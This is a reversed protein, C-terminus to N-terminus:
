RDGPPPELQELPLATERQHPPERRVLPWLVYLLTALTLAAIALTTM